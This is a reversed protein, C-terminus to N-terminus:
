HYFYETTTIQQFGFYPDFEKQRIMKGASDYFYQFADRREESDIASKGTEM